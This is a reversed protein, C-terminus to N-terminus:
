DFAFGSGSVAKAYKVNGVVTGNNAGMIDLANFQGRYWSVLNAPPAACGQAVAAGVHSSLVAGAVGIGFIVHKM